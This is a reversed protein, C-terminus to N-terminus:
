QIDVPNILIGFAPTDPPTTSIDTQTFQQIKPWKTPTQTNDTTSYLFLVKYSDITIYMNLHLVLISFVCVCM